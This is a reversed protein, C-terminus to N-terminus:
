VKNSTHGFSLRRSMVDSNTSRVAISCEPLALSGKWGASAPADVVDHLSDDALMVWLKELRAHRLRLKLLLCALCSSVSFRFRNIVLVLLLDNYKSSVKDAVTRKVNNM